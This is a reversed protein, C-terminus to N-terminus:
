ECVRLFVCVCVRTRASSSVPKNNEDFLPSPIEIAELRYPQGNPQRLAEVQLKMKQMPEYHVDDKRSCTAYAITDPSCFRVLNDIHSDTDDGLLAGETIWLIRDLGLQDLVGERDDDSVRDVSRHLRLPSPRMMREFLEVEADECCFFSSRRACRRPPMM